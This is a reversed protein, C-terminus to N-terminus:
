PRAVIGDDHAARDELRQEIWLAACDERSACAQAPVERVLPFTHSGRVVEADDALDVESVVACCSGLVREDQEGWVDVPSGGFDVGGSASCPRNIAPAVVPPLKARRSWQM